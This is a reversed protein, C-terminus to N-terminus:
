DIEIPISQSFTVKIDDAAFFAIFPFRLDHTDVFVNQSFLNPDCSHQFHM